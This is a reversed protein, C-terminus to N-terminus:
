APLEDTIKKFSAILRVLLRGLEDLSDPTDGSEFFLSLGKEGKTSEETTMKPVNIEGTPPLKDRVQEVLLTLHDKDRPEAWVYPRLRGKDCWIGAYLSRVLVSDSKLAGGFFVDDKSAKFKPGKRPGKEFVIGSTSRELWNGLHTKLADFADQIDFYKFVNKALFDDETTTM